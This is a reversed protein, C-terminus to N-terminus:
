SFRIPYNMIKGTNLLQYGAVILAFSVLISFLSTTAIVAGGAIIVAIGIGILVWGLNRNKRGYALFIIGAICLIIGPSSYSYFSVHISTTIFGIGALMLAIGLLKSAMPVPEKTSLITNQSNSPASSVTSKQNQFIFTVREGEGLSIKDGINLSYRGKPELKTGNLRTGNSSGVDEIFYNGGQVRIELHARSVVEADPLLSIDIDPLDDDSPKGIRIVALPPLLFSNGTQVHFIEVLGTTQSTGTQMTQYSLLRSM